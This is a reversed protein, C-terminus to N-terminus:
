GKTEEQAPPLPIHIDLALSWHGTDDRRWFRVYSFEQVSEDAALTSVGYAYGLDGSDSVGVMAPVWSWVGEIATLAGTVAEVGKLPMQGARYFRIDDAARKVYAATTGDAASQESFTLEVGALEERIQDLNISGLASVPVPEKLTLVPAVTDHPDHAVGIDILFRFSSDPQLKWLTIYHGSVDPPGAEPDSRYEWPGTTYGLDGAASIEAFSPEWTLLAQADERDAYFEKVNVAGPAFMIGVDAAYMTFGDRMGSEGTFSAFAMETEVLVMPDVPEMKTGCGSLILLTM